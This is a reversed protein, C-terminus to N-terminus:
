KKLIFNILKKIYLNNKIYTIVKFLHTLYKFYYKSKSFLQYSEGLM